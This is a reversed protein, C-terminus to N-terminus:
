DPSPGHASCGPSPYRDLTAKATLRGIGLCFEPECQAIAPEATELKDTLFRNAKIDDIKNTSGLPQHDFDISPLV